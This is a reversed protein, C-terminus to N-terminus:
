QVRFYLYLFTLFDLFRLLFISYSYFVIFTKIMLRWCNWHIPINEIQKEEKAFIEHNSNELKNNANHFCKWNSKSSHKGDNMEDMWHFNSTILLDLAIKKAGDNFISDVNKWLFSKYKETKRKRSTITRKRTIKIMLKVM